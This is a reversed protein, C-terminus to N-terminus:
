PASPAPAPESSSNSSSSSTSSSGDSDIDANADHLRQRQRRKKAAHRSLQLAKASMREEVSNRPAMPADPQFMKQAAFRRTVKNEDGPGPGDLEWSRPKDYYGRRWEVLDPSVTEELHAPLLRTGQANDTFVHNLIKVGITSYKDASATLSYTRTIKLSPVILYTRKSPRHKGPDFADILITPGLPDEKRMTAAGEKYCAILDNMRYIPKTQIYRNIWVRSWGFLRDCAGKGHQEALYLVSM